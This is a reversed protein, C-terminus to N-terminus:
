KPTPLLIVANEWFSAEGVKGDIRYKVKLQKKEGPAPDGGFSDNYTPSKLTILPMEHVQKQLQKTVDKHTEGAGYEAKVIEVKMPALGASALLDSTDIGKAGLKQSIVHAARTADAKVSSTKIAQTAVKMTDVSPYRELVAMVLRQEDRQPSAALASACMTAREEDPMSFQRALRIYGRLARVQYKGASPNKALDLLVPAADVSMWRGLVRSGADHLESDNNGKLADAISALAKPGGVAGLIELLKVQTPKSARPMAAALEAACGDRDPMRISAAKLALEAVAADEPSKPNLVPDILVALDKQNATEGLATLAASRIPTESQALAKVLFPTADIRRQGVVEILAVAEKGDAKPLRSVIEMDVSKGPMTALAAQAAQALEADDDAAISLLTPVSTADGRRGIVGIATIRVQKDGSKAAALVARPLVADNRDMLASVLLAARDPAAKTLESALADAVQPAQLQRAVILGLQFTRNDPSKIQEILLPIGDTGRALIAGRTAELKRPKPVDAKRVE